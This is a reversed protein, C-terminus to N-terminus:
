PTTSSESVKLGTRELDIVALAVRNIDRGNNDPSNNIGGLRQKLDIVVLVVNLNLAFGRQTVQCCCMGIVTKALFSLIKAQATARLLHSRKKLSFDLVAEALSPDLDNLRTETMQSVCRFNRVSHQLPLLRRCYNSGPLFNDFSCDSHYVQGQIFKSILIDNIQILLPFCSHDAIQQDNKTPLM